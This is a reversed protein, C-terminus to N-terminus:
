KSGENSAKLRHDSTMLGIVIRDNVYPVVLWRFHLLEPHDTDPFKVPNGNQSRVAM